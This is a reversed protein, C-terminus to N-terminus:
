PKKSVLNRPEDLPHSAFHNWPITGAELKAIIRDTVIQYIDTNATKNTMNVEVRV